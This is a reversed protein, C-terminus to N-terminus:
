NSALRIATRVLACPRVGEILCKVNFPTLATTSQVYNLWLKQTLKTYYSSDGSTPSSYFRCIRSPGGNYASWAARARSIYNTSSGVCYATAAKVWAAYYIDLGYVINYALDVGKGEKLADIHSRDDIQMLGHGHDYDGRMYRIIGDVPKRYHTWFTEQHALAYLGRLFANTETTTVTPKRRKIYYTGMDRLLTYMNSMYEIRATSLTKSHDFIAPSFQSTTTSQTMSPSVNCAYPSVGFNWSGSVKQTCTLSILAEAKSFSTAVFVVAVVSLVGITKKNLNKMANLLGSKKKCM